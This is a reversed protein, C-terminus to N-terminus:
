SCMYVRSELTAKIASILNDSAKVVRFGSNDHETVVGPMVGSSTICGLKEVVEQEIRVFATKEQKAFIFTPSAVESILEALM